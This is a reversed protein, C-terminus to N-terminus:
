ELEVFMAAYWHIASRKQQFCVVRRMVLLRRGFNDIPYKHEYYELATNAAISPQTTTLERRLRAPLVAISWLELPQPPVILQGRVRPDSLPWPTSHSCQIFNFQSRIIYYYTIIDELLRDRVSETVVGVFISKLSPALASSSAESPIQPAESLPSRTVTLLSRSWPSSTLVRLQRPQTGRIYAAPEPWMSTTLRRSLWGPTQTLMLFLSLSVQKMSAM